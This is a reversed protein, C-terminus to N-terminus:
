VDGGKGRKSSSGRNKVPPKEGNIKRWCSKCIDGDHNYPELQVVKLRDKGSDIEKGCVDCKWRFIM